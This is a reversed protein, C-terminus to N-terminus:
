RPSKIQPWPCPPVRRPLGPHPPHPPRAPCETMQGTQAEPSISTATMKSTVSLHAPRPPTVGPLARSVRARIGEPDSAIQQGRQVWNCLLLWAASWWTRNRPKVPSHTSPTETASQCAYLQGKPPSQRLTLPAPGQCLDGSVRSPAELIHAPLALSVWTHVHLPSLLAGAGPERDEMPAPASWALWALVGAACAVHSLGTSQFSQRVGDRLPQRGTYVSAGLPSLPGGEERDTALEYRGSRQTM